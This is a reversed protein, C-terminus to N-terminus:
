NHAVGYLTVIELPLQLLYPILPRCCQWRLFMKIRAYRTFPSNISPLFQQGQLAMPCRDATDPM